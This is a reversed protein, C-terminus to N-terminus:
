NPRRSELEERERETQALLISNKNIAAKASEYDPRVADATKAEMSIRNLLNIAAASSATEIDRQRGLLQNLKLLWDRQKAVTDITAVSVGLGRNSDGLQSALRQKTVLGEATALCLLGMTAALIIKLETTKQM